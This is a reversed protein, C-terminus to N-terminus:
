QVTTTNNNLLKEYRALQQLFGKNPQIAARIAKLHAHAQVLSWRESQMLAALTVSASRSVGANCHVVVGGAARGIRIWELCQPLVALLDTEEVDLVPVTLYQFLEPYHPQLDPVLNLVHTIGHQQLQLADTVCDQSGM